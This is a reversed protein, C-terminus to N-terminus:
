RNIVIEAYTIAEGELLVREGDLTCHLQGGRSSLQKAFLKKKGLRKAWYPVLTCHASGTVPDELITAQPTFFRSVFDCDNGPATVVVGGPDLNIKDFWFRDVIITEIDRQSAFVLMYDRAKYIEIPDINLSRRIDGPLESVVAERIPFDLIYGGKNGRVVSVKGSNTEFSIETGAFGTESFIVHAAALTAHGCLDMEVDPTFWRLDFKDGSRHVFATEPVGNERAINLLANDSLVEELFVVVAPNGSFLKNTFADVHFGKLKM